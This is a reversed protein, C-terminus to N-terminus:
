KGLRRVIGAEADVEVLDGTKFIKTAIETGVICPIHFERAIVAAHSTLGGEDTVMAAARKLFPVMNPQTMTTMLIDGSQFNKFQRGLMSIDGPIIIQAKGSAMGSSAITGRLAGNDAAKKLKQLEVKIIRLAKIGSFFNLRGNVLLLVYAHKRKQLESPKVIPAHKAIAQVVEEIRYFSFLERLPIRTRRSIELYLPYYLFDSGAWGGKLRMRELALEQFLRAFYSIRKDALKQLLARQRVALDKKRRTFEEIDKELLKRRRRDRFSRKMLSNMIVAPEYTHAVLWPYHQAHKELLEKRIHGRSMLRLWEVREKDIEDFQRSTILIEFAKKVENNNPLRHSLLNRLQRSSQELFEGRSTKFYGRIRSHFQYSKIFMEILEQDSLESLNV